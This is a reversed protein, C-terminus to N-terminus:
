HGYKVLFILIMQAVIVVTLGIALFTNRKSDKKEKEALAMHVAELQEFIKASGIANAAEILNHTQQTAEGVLRVTKYPWNAKKGLAAQPGKLRRLQRGFVLM